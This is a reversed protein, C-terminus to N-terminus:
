IKQIYISVTPIKHQDFVYFRQVKVNDFRDTKLKGIYVIEKSDDSEVKLVYRRNRYENKIDLVRM